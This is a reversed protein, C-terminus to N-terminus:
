PRRTQSRGITSDLKGLSNQNLDTVALPATIPDVEAGCKECKVKAGDAVKLLSVKVLERCQPCSLSLFM